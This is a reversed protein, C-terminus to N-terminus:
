TRDSRFDSALRSMFAGTFYCRSRMPTPSASSRPSSSATTVPARIRSRRCEFWAACDRIMPVGHANEDYALQDFKDPAASAFLRSIAIQAPALVNVVFRQQDAFRSINSSALRLSWVILPPALSLSSFSNATLGALEGHADRTTIVTVGTPFRGLASRLARQAAQAADAAPQVPAAGPHRM